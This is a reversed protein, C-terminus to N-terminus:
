ATFVLSTKKSVPPPRSRNTTITTNCLENLLYQIYLNQHKAQFNFDVLHICPPVGRNTGYHSSHSSFYREYVMSRLRGDDLISLSDPEPQRRVRSAEFKAKDVETRRQGNAVASSDDHLQHTIYM